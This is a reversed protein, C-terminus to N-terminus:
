FLFVGAKEIGDEIQNWWDVTPSIGEWDIWFDFDQDKVCGTLKKAFNTDNRSYSFFLSTV